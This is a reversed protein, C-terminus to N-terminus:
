EVIKYKESKGLQMMLENIEQKLQIMKKERGYAVKSFRELEDVNRRLEDEMQKREAINTTMGFSGVVNGDKDFLPSANMLCPVQQGDARILSIEYLSHIGKKRMRNQKRVIERNKEDLFEFFNSGVIEEKGLGLIKCMAKNVEMINDDQDTLWFGQATTKLINNLRERSERIAEEAVKRETIDTFMGFSGIIAGDGDLLPSANVLCPVKKGNSRILSVEYLSRKSERRMEEQKRVKSRSEEDLFDYIKKGIIEGKARGLIECMANNVDLTITDKDVLWFGQNTTKLITSLREQSERIAEEARKRETIDELTAIVETPSTGPETPNFIIRLSTTKNGTVSTYDGEYEATEGALAKIIAARLKEDNTQKPTNFGILKERSSGMLEVFMDNCDLITGDKSFHIIGLPSNEFITRMNLESERLAEEAQKRETIDQAFIAVGMIVGRKDQVPYYVHHFVMGDRADEFDAPNGTQLVENFHAKRSERLNESLMDFRNKGILQAPKQQHRRAATQNVAIITGEKDLLLLSEQTADLLGRATARSERLAEEAEKRESIDRFVVVTGAIDGNKRIPVSTFEVPFSKGDKRWLVEDDRSGSVGQTLSQHMPCEEVPYPTGDPRTHHILPHIKQGILEEAEFGLLALGAPNIFNVLGNEAVGFIGEEASELLLRSQEEAQELREQNEKLERTREEVRLELEDHSKQLSRKARVDILVALVLSGLALLVTVGLVTLIVIRTTFYLSLADAQDIETALGIGLKDDWLWAGYVKVGRYDRYGAVNLGSKGRTAQEAMLTLPQQYRPVSPTFGKTMDGGPDRVSVSLISTQGESILGAKILHEEFRSETLLKGYAGFAYTEGSKSLRGLQILRTFDRTPDVSQTVVAIVNGQKNKVPAAFFMTPTSASKGESSTNLPADFWIPPVMVTEGRFAGNLLDLAQSAILNKSGIDSNRMSVINTFNPSIVFFGTLRERDRHRRFFARIEMLTKSEFLSMKDRSVVLQQETLSVLRPDEALRILQSKNSEVWLNLSEQTTHLVIQLAEGVDAQIKEKVRDLAFWALIVVLM